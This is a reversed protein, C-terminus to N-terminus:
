CNNLATPIPSTVPCTYLPPREWTLGAGVQGCRGLRVQPRRRGCQSDGAVSNFSGPVKLWETGKVPVALARSDNPPSRRGSDGEDPCLNKACKVGRGRCPFPPATKPVRRQLTSRRASHQGGTLQVNCGRHHGAGTLRCPQGFM